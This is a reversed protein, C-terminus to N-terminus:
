IARWVNAKRGSRTNRMMPAMCIKGAQFLEVRRPRQTNGAMDLAVQCEDDTAGRSGQEMIYDLLKRRLTAADAKIADAAALSTPVNVAPPQGLMDPLPGFTIRGMTATERPIGMYNSQHFLELQSM